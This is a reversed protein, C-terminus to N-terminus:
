MKVVIFAVLIVLIVATFKQEIYVPSPGYSFHLNFPGQSETLHKNQKYAHEVSIVSQKLLYRHLFCNSVWCKYMFILAVSAHMYDCM